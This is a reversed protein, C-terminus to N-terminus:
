GVVAMPIDLQAKTMCAGKGSAQGEVPQPTSEGQMSEGRVEGCLSEDLLQQLLQSAEACLVDEAPGAGCGLVRLLEWALRSLPATSFHPKSFPQAVAAEPVAQRSSPTESQPTSTPAAGPGM